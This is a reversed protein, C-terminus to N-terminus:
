WTPRPGEVLWGDRRLDAIHGQRTMAASRSPINKKDKPEYVETYVFTTPAKPLKPGSPDVPDVPGREANVTRKLTRWPEVCDGCPSLQSRIEIAIIRKLLEEGQQDKLFRIFQMETHGTNSKRYAPGGAAWGHTIVERRETAGSTNPANGATYVGGRPKNSSEPPLSPDTNFLSYGSGRPPTAGTGRPSTGEMELATRGPPVSVTIRVTMQQNVDQEEAM